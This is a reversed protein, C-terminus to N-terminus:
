GTRRDGKDVEEFEADVVGPGADGGDAGGSPTAGARSAAESMRSAAQTMRELAERIRQADEGQMAEKLSFVAQEVDKRASEPTSTTLSPSSPLGPKKWYTRLRSLPM